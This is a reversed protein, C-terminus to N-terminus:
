PAAAKGLMAEITGAVQQAQIESGQENHVDDKYLDLHQMMLVHQDDIPIGQASVIEKAIANRADIRLNTAGSPAVVRVPTISAWILSAHPVDSRLENVLAPFAAKYQEETYAWGHMGNNFHVLRFSVAEMKTFEAIQHPLRPDGVSASTALLYVNAKDALLSVVAPYYNQTISDGLLLVNPLKPDPNPPRMEWTWETREPISTQTQAALWPSTILITIAILRRIPIKSNRKSQTNM